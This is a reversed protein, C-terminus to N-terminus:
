QLLARKVSEIDRHLSWERGDVRGNNWIRICQNFNEALEHVIKIAFDGFFHRRNYDLIPRMDDLMDRLQPLSLDCLKEIETAILDMRRDPDFERDYSENIYDGFTHFGYSRLYELNGAAGTLIFPRGCVIPQFIKETLHLKDDWFVTENVVTFLGRQRLDYDQHGFQASATGDVPGEHALIPLQCQGDVLSQILNRSHDSLQSEQDHIEATCTTQSGHFSVIGRDLLRRQWLRALMAMRYSRKGTVLHNLSIFPHTISRDFDLYRADRYWDLAAFGHYFFYWDLLSHEKCMAKKLRSHESNALIRPYRYSRVVNTHGHLGMSDSTYIPEQDFHFFVCASPIATLGGVHWGNDHFTMIHKTTGFPWGYRLQLNVPKLLVQYLLQYFNEVSIVGYKLDILIKIM